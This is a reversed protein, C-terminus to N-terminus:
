VPVHATQAHQRCAARRSAEGQWSLDVQAMLALVDAWYRLEGAGELGPASDMSGIM